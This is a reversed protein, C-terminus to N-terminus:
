RPVKMALAHMESLWTNVAFTGNFPHTYGSDISALRNALHQVTDVEGNAGNVMTTAPLFAWKLMNDLSISAYYDLMATGDVRANAIDRRLEPTLHRTPVRWGATWTQGGADENFDVTWLANVACSLAQGLGQVKAHRFEQHFGTGLCIRGDNFSNPYIFMFLPDDMTMIPTNRLYLMMETVRTFGPDFCLGYVQWPVPLYYEYAGAANHEGARGPRYGVRAVTPPRELIVSRGSGSIWRIAPPLLGSDKLPKSYDRIAKDFAARNVAKSHGYQRIEVGEDSVVLERKDNDLKITNIPTAM